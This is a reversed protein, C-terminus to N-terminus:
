SRDRGPLFPRCLDLVAPWDDVLDLQGIVTEPQETVLAVLARITRLSATEEDLMIGRDQLTLLDDFSLRHVPGIETVDGVPHILVHTM